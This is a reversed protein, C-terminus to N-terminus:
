SQHSLFRTKERIWCPRFTIFLHLGESSLLLDDLTSTKLPKSRGESISCSFKWIIITNHTLFNSCYSHCSWQCLSFRQGTELAGSPSSAESHEGANDLFMTLSRVNETCGILSWVCSYIPSPHGWGPYSGTLAGAEKARGFCDHAKGTSEKAQVKAWLHYGERCEDLELKESKAQCPRVRFAHHVDGLTQGSIVWVLWAWFVGTGTGVLGSVITLSTPPLLWFYVADEKGNQGFGQHCSCVTSAPLPFSM